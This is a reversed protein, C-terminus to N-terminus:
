RRIPHMAPILANHTKVQICLKLNQFLCNNYFVQINLVTAKTFYIVKKIDIGVNDKHISIYYLNRMLVGTKHHLEYIICLCVCVSVCVCM